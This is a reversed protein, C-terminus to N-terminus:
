NKELHVKTEADGKEIQIHVTKGDGPDRFALKAADSSVSTGEAETFHKQEYAQRYFAVVNEVTLTTTYNVTDNHANRITVPDPLPYKKRVETLIESNVENVIGSVDKGVEKKVDNAINNGVSSDCSTLLPLIAFLLLILKPIFKV